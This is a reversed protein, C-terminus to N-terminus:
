RGVGLYNFGNSQWTEKNLVNRADVVVKSRMLNSVQVPEIGRIEEWETLVALVDSGTLADYASDFLQISLKSINESCITIHGMKRNLKADKKFYIHIHCEDFQKAVDIYAM